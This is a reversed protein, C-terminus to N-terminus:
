NEQFSFLVLHPGSFSCPRKIGDSVRRASPFLHEHSTTTFRPPALFLSLCLLWWREPQRGGSRWGNSGLTRPCWAQRNPITNPCPLIVLPLWLSLTTATLLCLAWTSLSRFNEENIDKPSKHSSKLIDCENSLTMRWQSIMQM